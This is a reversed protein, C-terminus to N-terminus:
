GEESFWNNVKSELGPIIESMKEDANDYFHGPLGVEKTKEVIQSTVLQSIRGAEGALSAAMRMTDDM